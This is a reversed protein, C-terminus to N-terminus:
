KAATSATAAELIQAYLDASVTAVYMVDARDRPDTVHTAIVNEIDKIHDHDAEGHGRLFVTSAAGGQVTKSLADAVMHGVDDGLAELAYTWGLLAVPNGHGAWFYEVGLMAMCPVSPRAHTIVSRSVGLSELDSRAWVDHGLEESAHHVLYRAVNPNTMAARAGAMAIVVPSHMAYQYVDTMYRAYAERPVDGALISRVLPTSRVRALSRERLASLESMM